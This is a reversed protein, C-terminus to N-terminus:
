LSILEYTRQLKKNYQIVQEIIEQILKQVHQVQDPTGQVSAM